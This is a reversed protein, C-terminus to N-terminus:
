PIDRDMVTKRGQSRATEIAMDCLNKVRDTLVEYAGASTNMGSRDHIYKRVKSIVVLVEDDASPKEPSAPVIRRQGSPGGAAAAQPARKEIAGANDPRHREVPVHADWCAISCFAYNTVAARCTSISCEYYIEGTLIDKKCSSCKKWIQSMSM